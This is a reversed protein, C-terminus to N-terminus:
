YRSGNMEYAWTKAGNDREWDGVPGTQRPDNRNRYGDVAPGTPLPATEGTGKGHGIDYHFDDFLGLYSDFDRVTPQPTTTFAVPDTAIENLWDIRLAGFVKAVNKHDVLSRDLANKIKEVEIEQEGIIDDYLTDLRWEMDDYADNSDRVANNRAQLIDDEEEELLRL